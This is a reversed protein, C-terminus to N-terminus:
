RRRPTHACCCSSSRRVSSPTASPCSSTCPSRSPESSAVVRPDGYRLAVTRKGARVDPLAVEAFHSDCAHARDFGEPPRAYPPQHRARGRAARRPPARPAQPGSRGPREGGDRHAPGPGAQPVGQHPQVQLPDRAPPGRRRRPHAHPLARAHSAQRPPPDAPRLHLEGETPSGLGLSERAVEAFFARGLAPRDLVLTRSYEIQRMSLQWDYGAARDADSLPLPLRATWRRFLAEVASAGLRDSIRELAQPDDCRAFGNKLPEFGIGARLLQRKAWEHGNCWLEHPTRLTRPSRSRPRAGPSTSSTSTSSPSPGSRATSTTTPSARLAAITSARGMWVSRREQAEGIAVVGQRGVAAAADLYRRVTALKDQRSRFPLLPIGQEESFRRVASRFAEGIPAFLAPSPIPNGRHDRLFTVMGGGSQLLPVYANFVMRDFCEVDLTVHGELAEAVSPRREQEAM